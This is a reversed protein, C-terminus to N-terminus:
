QNRPQHILPTHPTHFSRAKNTLLMQCGDSTQRCSVASDSLLTHHKCNPTTSTNTSDRSTETSNHSCPKSYQKSAQSRPLRKQNTQISPLELTNSKCAHKNTNITQHQSMSTLHQLLQKISSEQFSPVCVAICSIVPVPFIASSSFSLM